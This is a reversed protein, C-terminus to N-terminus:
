FLTISFLKANHKFIISFEPLIRTKEWWRDNYIYIQPLDRYDSYSVRIATVLTSLNLIENLIVLSIHRPPLSWFHKYEFFM